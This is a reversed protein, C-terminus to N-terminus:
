GVKEDKKNHANQTDQYWEGDFGAKGENEAKEKAEERERKLKELYVKQQRMVECKVSSYNQVAEIREAKGIEKGDLNKLQPLTAIVYDRYGVYETCPNGTMYLDALFTNVKLSDLSTLEAVFNATLDLKKLSECGTLGEVREVNNVALNLYELDKLKSVSEIRPVLNAQLYLIKLKRCWKDLYEIREIDCQHLSLEELTSIECENHESKRRVLDETIFVMKFLLTM